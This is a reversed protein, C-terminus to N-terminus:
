KTLFLRDGVRETAARAKANQRQTLKMAAVISKLQRNAARLEDRLDM